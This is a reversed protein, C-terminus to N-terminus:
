LVLVSNDADIGNFAFRDAEPENAWHSGDVVYRFQYERNNELDLSVSWSGDKARKLPLQDISWGNFDGSLAVCSASAFPEGSVRFKVKCVPKSKLFKKELSM